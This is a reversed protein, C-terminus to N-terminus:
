SASPGVFLEAVATGIPVGLGTCPDAGKRARYVGNSGITVDAFVQPSAWLNPGLWGLKTGCAAILGAWMPAVCSTGGVIEVRGQYVMQYGTQPDACAAVDPVMRGLGRPPAPAKLQWTQTTFDASYGGGTGEGNANYPTDNWVSEVGSQPKNTGGCGIMHLGSAPYDVHARGPDGDDADNDGSAALVVMGGSTAAAAAAETTQIDGKAWYPEAAGWSISCVDYGAAAAASIARGIGGGDNNAWFQGMTAPKGTAVFYAAASFMVDLLNEVDADGGPSNVAGADVSHDTINPVPQGVMTFYADIDSQPRGGGLSVIAIKGGGALSSPWSYAKCLNPVSWSSPLAMHRNPHLKFYPRLM